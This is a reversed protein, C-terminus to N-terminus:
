GGSVQRVQAPTLAAIDTIGTVALNGVLTAAGTSLNTSYLGETGNVTLVAYATNLGVIDLGAVNSTDVGLPGVATLTGSAPDIMVLQDTAADIGYLTTTRATSLNNSFAATVVDPVTANGYSLDGAITTQGTSVNVQLNLQNSTVIQLKDSAPNFAVGFSTNAPVALGALAESFADFLLEPERFVRPEFSHLVPGSAGAGTDWAGFSGDPKLWYWINGFQNPVGRLWKATGSDDYFGQTDEYLGWQQDLQVAAEADFRNLPTAAAQFLLEAKLYLAADFQFLTAGSPGSGGDWAGVSGDPRLWYWPNGFQNKVGRLWKVAQAGYNEYFGHADEYLGLTEKFFEAEVTQAANLTVTSAGSLLQPHLYLAPDFPVQNLVKGSPAGDSGYGGDWAVLDVSVITGTVLRNRRLFYWPNGSDNLIGRLWKVGGSDEFFGRADVYLGLSQDLQQAEATQAANLTVTSAGLLIDPNKFLNTGLNALVKGTPGSTNYGGDWAVFTGNPFLVYWPNGFQNRDGRLWKVGGGGSNEFYGSGDVYLGLTSDLAVAQSDNFGASLTAVATPLAIARNVTYINNLNTVAYLQGDSPRVDIGVMTEGPLLGTITETGTVQGPNASNFFVLQNGPRLGAFTQTATPVEVAGIDNALGQPRPTGLQDVPVVGPNGADLVPSGPQPLRSPTGGGNFGLQGLLPDQGTINHTTRGSIVAGSTNQILNYDYSTLPGFIDTAGLGNAPATNGAFISNAASVQGSTDIFLGVGGTNGALTVSVLAVNGPQVAIGGGQNSAITTNIITVPAYTSQPFDTFYLGGGATTASNGVVSCQNLTLTSDGSYIGGGHAATNAQAASTGGITVNTLSVVAYRETWLGGGDQTTTNGQITGNQVTATGLDSVRLGGGTNGTLTLNSATLHCSDGVTIANGTNNSFTTDTLDASAGVFIGNAEQVLGELSLGGSGVGATNGDLTTGTMSLRGSYDVFVGGGGPFAFGRGGSAYNASVTGGLITVQGGFQHMLGGGNGNIKNGNLTVGSLTTIGGELYIGGGSDGDPHGNTLTTNNNAVSSDVVNLTGDAFFIGGGDAVGAIENASITSKNITVTGGNAFLGGGGQGATTSTASNATITSNGITLTDIGSYIGGGSLATSNQVTVNTLSVDQGDAILLAGGNGNAGANGNNLTLNALRVTQVSGIPPNVAINFIRSTGGGDITVQSSAGTSGDITVDDTITLQGLAQVLTITGAGLVADFVITDGDAAGAPAVVTSNVTVPANTNAAQLAERLSLHTADPATAASFDALTNVTYVTPVARDELCEVHPRWSRQPGQRNRKRPFASSSVSHRRSFLYGFM